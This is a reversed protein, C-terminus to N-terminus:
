QRISSSASEGSQEKLHAAIQPLKSNKQMDMTIHLISDINSATVFNLANRVTPDIEELDSYNAEPIIVTKINNRLAAMTKEKLGGIPLIRGRLTIEGTMAIERHVPSNTLASILAVAITIGASPGDKPVAGEPFHIHLDKKTYFDKDIGLMEARSRIYSLAAQASEKMVDGLNGTLNLKGTGDLVNVEVQLLEGGVQTWALGNVIGVEDNTLPAEVKFRRVGLLEELRASTVTLSKSQGEAIKAATRRCIRSIERELQRVGSERTYGSIIDRLAGPGIKLQAAKLGHKKRQKPILHNTAIKLKEEDTYSGLEIIEMRDLLPRPITETTNATTIFLTESLDFPIELYHDRFTSNQESDLAELLAASPDGRYDRGMKDIEDLLLVPNRSGAQKIASIIRGPMAGVYTKRHGRIESEDHVGGLSIRAFNRNMSQAISGAVSTKGVGPPGVFCLIGGKIDNALQKVALFEIIREKVKDLGFHDKNLVDRAHATSLNDKTMYTWPLELVTDLYTRIVAAESSSPPQKSLRSVEKLLKEIYEESLGLETISDAYDTLESEIDDGEGLESKIVRMQERLVFERQGSALQANTKEQLDNKIELIEVERSLIKIVKELRKVPNTESLIKQKEYYQIVSNQAIYDALFAPDNSSLVTIVNEAQYDNYVAYNEFLSHCQRCMADIRKGPRKIPEDPLPSITASYYPGDTNIDLLRSKEVGEIMIRLGQGPVRLVQEINCLTGVKFLDDFGPEDDFIDQQTVLFIKRDTSMAENVAAVSIDREVDFHLLMNPFVTIGRLALMPVNENINLNNTESM